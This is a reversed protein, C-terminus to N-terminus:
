GEHRWEDFSEDQETYVHQVRIQGAQVSLDLEVTGAGHSGPIDLDVVRPEGWSRRPGRDDPVYISGARISTTGQLSVRRPVTLTIEGLVLSVDLPVTQGEWEMQSLDIWVSGGDHHIRAPVAQGAGPFFVRDVQWDAVSSAVMMPVLVAAVLILWRARGWIAGVLLGTGIVVVVAALYQRPTLDYRMTCANLAALLGVALFTAGVTLRGLISRDRPPALPGPKEIEAPVPPASPSEAPPDSPPPDPQVLGKLDGTYLLFGVVLLVGAILIGSSLFPIRDLLIVAAVAVLALGLWGELRGLRPILRAAVPTPEDESRMLLWGALYLVLGLGGVFTLVIFAIRTLHVPWSLRHAVGAAVGLLIRDTPRVWQPTQGIHPSQDTMTTIMDPCAGATWRPHGRVEGSGARPQVQNDM